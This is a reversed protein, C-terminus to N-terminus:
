LHHQCSACVLTFTLYSSFPNHWTAHTTPGDYMQMKFIQGFYLNFLILYFLQFYVVLTKPEYSEKMCLMAHYFKRLDIQHPFTCLFLM